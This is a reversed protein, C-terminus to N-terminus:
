TARRKRLYQSGLGVVESDPVMFETPGEPDVDIAYDNSWAQPHFTIKTM